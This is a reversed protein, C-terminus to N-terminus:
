QLEIVRQGSAIAAELRSLADAFAAILAAKRCDPIRVWILSIDAPDRLSCDLFDEDKSILHIGKAACHRWIERDTASALGIDEVNTAEHNQWRLWIVLALPLQHDVLFRM